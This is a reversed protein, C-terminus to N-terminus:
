YVWVKEELRAEGDWEGFGEALEGGIHGGVADGDLRPEEVGNRVDESWLRHADRAILASRSM